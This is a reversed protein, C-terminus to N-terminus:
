EACRVRIYWPDARFWERTPEFVERLDINGTPAGPPEYKDLSNSFQSVSLSTSEDRQTSTTSPVTTISMPRCSCQPRNYAPSLVVSLRPNVACPNGGTAGEWGM